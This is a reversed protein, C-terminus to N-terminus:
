RRRHRESDVRYYGRHRRKHGSASLGGASAVPADNVAIVTITVVAVTSTLGGSDIVEFSFSDVGNTDANPTYTATAGNVAVTGNSPETTVTYTLSSSDDETDSAIM